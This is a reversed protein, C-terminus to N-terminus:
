ANEVPFKLIDNKYQRVSDWVRDHYYYRYIGTVTYQIVHVTVTYQIVHVDGNLLISKYGNKM